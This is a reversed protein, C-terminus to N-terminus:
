DTCSRGQVGALRHFDLEASGLGTFDYAVRLENCGNVRLTLIGIDERVASANGPMVFDLGSLRQTPIQVEEAGYEFSQAGTLWFPQGDLFLFWTFFVVPGAHNETVFLMIGQDNLGQAIWAGSISGNLPSHAEDLGDLTARLVFLGSEMDSVLLAGNGFFPYVSWAGAFRRSDNDPATDFYAVESLGLGAGRDIRLVRLGAEYNAQYLYDGVVFMNHDITSTSHAHAMAFAPNDLDAVEFVLTRTNMGLALEDLEDGMFFLAHDESLWGQHSYATDPYDVKGLMVPAQKNSVDVITLSDENSAFCVEAGAHDTDPGAYNVCQVDHTYGDASFCGAYAPALPTRVDVMHLGGDCPTAGVIYAYGSQENIALNHASGVNTYLADADWEQAASVGRLRRLDFVQMGHDAIGDAVIFAHDEYVKIDRWPSSASTSPLSGLYVPADPVTIDIFSTGLSRGFLAYFRGTEGDMWGWLDSGVGHGIEELPMRALMEINNCAFGSSVGSHCLSHNSGMDVPGPNHPEDHKPGIGPGDAALSAAMPVGSAVCCLVALRAIVVPWGLGQIYSM